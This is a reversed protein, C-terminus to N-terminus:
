AHQFSWLITRADIEASLQTPVDCESYDVGKEPLYDIDQLWPNPGIRPEPHFGFQHKCMAKKWAM